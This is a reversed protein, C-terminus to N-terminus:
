HLAIEEGTNLARVSGRVRAPVTGGFTVLVQRSGGPPLHFWNDSPIGPVDLAVWQAARQTSITVRWTDGAPEVAAALGLDAEVPRCQGLPFYVEGSLEM